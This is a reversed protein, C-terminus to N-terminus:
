KECIAIKRGPMPSQIFEISTFLQEHNQLIRRIAAATFVFTQDTQQDLSSVGILPLREYLRTFRLGVSKRFKPDEFTPFEILLKERTLRALQRLVRVPERLHHIVNLLCVYDFSETPPQEVVDQQALEVNSELIHKLLQAQRFREGNLEIGVVRTAGRKEAEFAFYGLACGVDIVSKGALSAPFVIDRTASRDQGPTHLGYPLEVRHYAFSQERLIKELQEKTYAPSM